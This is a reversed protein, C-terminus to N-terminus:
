HLQFKACVWNDKESHALYQLGVQKASEIIDALDSNYFGSMWIIGNSVLKKAMQNMNELLVNKNINAFGYMFETESIVDLGGLRMDVQVQNLQANENANDVSWDEIECGIVNAGRMAAMIALIGTGAGFDFVKQNSFDIEKVAELVQATTAHHGTGFTMKPTIKIQYQTQPIDTHFDAYIVCYDDLHVLPYNEEWDSNWNAPAVDGIHFEGGYQKALANIELELHDQIFQQEPVYAMIHDREEVTGEIGLNFLHATWIDWDEKQVPIIKIEKYAEM